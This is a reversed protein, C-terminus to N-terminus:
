AVRKSLVRLARLIFDLNLIWPKCSEGIGIGQNNRQRQTGNTEQEERASQFRAICDKELERISHKMEMGKCMSKARGLCEKEVENM